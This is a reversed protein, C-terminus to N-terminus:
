RRKSFTVIPDDFGRKYVRFIKKRRLFSSLKKGDINIGRQALLSVLKELSLMKVPSADLMGSILNFLEADGTESQTENGVTPRHGVASPLFEQPIKLQFSEASEKRTKEGDNNFPFDVLMINERAFIKIDERTATRNGSQLYLNVDGNDVRNILATMAYWRIRSEDDLMLVHGGSDKFIKMIANAQKWTPKHIKKESIYCCFGGPHEELFETGRKLGAGAGSHIKGIFIIFAFDRGKYKGMLKISKSSSKQFEFGEFSKLWVKLALTLNEANPPWMVPEDLIKKYEEDYARKITAIIENETSKSETSEPENIVPQRDGASIVAHNALEIVARPSYGDHLSNGMRKMLFDFIEGSNDKFRAEIKTKILLKAQELSCTKMIIMNNRLRQVVADDLVPMFVDNWIEARIFCLPLIGYLDNMLLSVANGWAIILDRDRMADMQDFCVIMSIKAYALVNGLAILIKESEQERKADSMSSFDREPLGLRISDDTELGDSIWDLLDNKVSADDANIYSILFKLFNRDLGPIDKAIESRLNLKEIESDSYDELRRREKYSDLFEGTVIDFQTRGNSHIRKLSIFIETLLHKTVSESDRFTKVAVFVARLSSERLRRLIRTLMHTKGSGAEGLILGALPSSPERRKHRMLQEIEESAERSLQLLDPNKNEWPLPSASSAFPNNERLKELIEKDEM